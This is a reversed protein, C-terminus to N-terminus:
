FHPGHLDLRRQVSAGEALPKMGIEPENATRLVLIVVGTLGNVTRLVLIATRLVLIATRLVLIAHGVM